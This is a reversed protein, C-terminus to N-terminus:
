RVPRIIRELLGDRLVYHHMLTATTHMGVSAYLLLQFVRHATGAWPAEALWAVAGTVPMVLLVAYLATHSLRALLALVVNDNQPLPPAGFVVRLRLRWLVLGFTLLGLLAHATELIATLHAPANHRQSWGETSAGGSLCQLVVLATVVWHLRIQTLTYGRLM